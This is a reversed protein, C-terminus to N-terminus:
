PPWGARGSSPPAALARDGYSRVLPRGGQGRRRREGVRGRRGDPVLAHPIGPAVKVCADRRLLGEVWTWPPVWDDVNFTRGAGTRRAPDAFAMDFGAHNVTTADAVQLAGPLGLAALNAEAVAVRVPDLDVGACM